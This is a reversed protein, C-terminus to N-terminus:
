GPQVPGNPGSLVGFCGASEIPGTLTEFEVAVSRGMGSGRIM